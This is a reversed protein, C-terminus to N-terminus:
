LHEVVPYFVTGEASADRKAVDPLVGPRDRTVM